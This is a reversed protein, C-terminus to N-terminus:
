KKIDTTSYFLVGKVGASCSDVCERYVRAIGHKGGALIYILSLYIALMLSNYTVPEYYNWWLYLGLLNTVVSALAIISLSISLRSNVRLIVCIVAADLAGASVYYYASNLHSFLIEHVWIGASFALAVFTSKYDKQAFSLALIGFILVTILYDIM